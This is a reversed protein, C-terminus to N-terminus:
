QKYYIHSGSSLANGNITFTTGTGDNIYAVNGSYTYSFKELDIFEGDEYRSWTFTAADITIEDRYLVGDYEYEDVWTGIFPNSEVPTEQACGAVVAVLLLALVLMLAYAINKKMFVGRYFYIKGVYKLSYTINIGIKPITLVKKIFCTNVGLTLFKTKM